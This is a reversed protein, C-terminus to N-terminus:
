EKLKFRHAMSIYNRQGEKRDTKGNRECRM